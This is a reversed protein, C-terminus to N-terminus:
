DGQSGLLGEGTNQRWRKDHTRGKYPLASMVARRWARIAAAYDESFREVSGRCEEWQALLAADRGGSMQRSLKSELNLAFKLREGASFMEIALM